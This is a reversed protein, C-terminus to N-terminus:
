GVPNPSPLSPALFSDLLSAQERADKIADALIGAAEVNEPPGADVLTAVHVTSGFRELAKPGCDNLIAATFASSEDRTLGDMRHTTHIEQFMAGLVLSDLSDELNAVKFLSRWLLKAAENIQARHTPILKLIAIHQEWLEVLESTGRSYLYTCVVTVLKGDADRRNTVVVTRTFTAVQARKYSIWGPIKFKWGPGVLALVESRPWTMVALWLMVGFAVLQPVWLMWVDFGYTYLRLLAAIVGGISVTILLYRPITIPVHYYDPQNNRARVAMEDPEVFEIFFKYVAALGAVAAIFKSFGSNLVSNFFGATPM